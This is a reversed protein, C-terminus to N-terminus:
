TASRAPATWPSSAPPWTASSRTTTWACAIWNGSPASWTAPPAISVGAVAGLALALLSLPKPTVEPRLLLGSPLALSAVLIRGLVLHRLANWSPGRPDSGPAPGVAPSAPALLPHVMLQRGRGRQDAQVDAPVDRDGHRGRHRGHDRDDGARHHV